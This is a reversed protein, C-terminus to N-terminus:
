VYQLNYGRAKVAMFAIHRTIDKVKYLEFNKTVKKIKCGYQSKLALNINICKGNYVGYHNVKLTERQINKSCLGLIVLETFTLYSYLISNVDSYLRNM